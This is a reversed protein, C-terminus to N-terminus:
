TGEHAAPGVDHLLIALWWRHVGHNFRHALAHGGYGELRGDDFIQSLLNQVLIRGKAFLTRQLLRLHTVPQWAFELLQNENFAHNTKGPTSTDM